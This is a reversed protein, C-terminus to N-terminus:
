PVTTPLRRTTGRRRGQISRGHVAQRSAAHGRALNGSGKLQRRGFDKSPLLYDLQTYKERDDFYHTWQDEVPLRRVVNEVQGWDVLAGIAPSGEDDTQMYDNFDGLIVWPEKGASRGFRARVIRLVEDVPLERRDHTNARGGMM